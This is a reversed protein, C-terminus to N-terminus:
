WAEGARHCSAGVGQASGGDAAEWSSRRAMAMRSDVAWDDSSHSPWGLGM